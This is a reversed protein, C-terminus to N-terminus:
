AAARRGTLSLRLSSTILILILPIITGPCKTWDPLVTLNYRVDELLDKIASPERMPVYVRRIERDRERWRFGSNIQRVPEAHNANYAMCSRRRMKQFYLTLQQAIACLNHSYHTEIVGARVAKRGQAANMIRPRRKVLRVEQMRRGRVVSCVPLMGRWPKSAGVITFERKMSSKEYARGRALSSMCGATTSHVPTPPVACPQTPDIVTM